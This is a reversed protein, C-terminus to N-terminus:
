TLGAGSILWETATVKLATAIGNAALTRSGTTGDQAWRLTDTTLAITVVGAGNGNTFTISTGIPFAVSANAPLTFVRATADAAPHHISKGSDTAVIGYAASQANQPIYRFGVEGSALGTGQLDTRYQAITRNTPAGAKWQVIDDDAPSLAAIQDFMAAWAQVNTGIVLGLLTKAQAATLSEPVGTGATARGILRATALDAMKALTIAGADVSIATGSGSVTIDGYDGDAAVGGGLTATGGPGTIGTPLGSGNTNLTYDGAIATAGVSLVGLARLAQVMVGDAGLIRRM